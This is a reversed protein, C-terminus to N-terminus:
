FLGLHQKYPPLTTRVKPFSSMVCLPLLRQSPGPSLFSVAWPSSPFPPAAELSLDGWRLSHWPSQPSSESPLQRGPVLWILHVLILCFGAEARWGSLPVAQAREEKQAGPDGDIFYPSPSYKHSCLMPTGERKPPIGLHSAPLSGGPGDHFGSLLGYLRM